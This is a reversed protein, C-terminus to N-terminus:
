EVQFIAPRSLSGHNFDGLLSHESTDRAHVIWSYYGGSEILGPPLVLRPQQLLESTYILRSDNWLDRIFVQYHAAGGIPKWSLQGPVQELVSENAPNWGSAQPLQSFILYDRAHYINGNALTVRASYWGDSVHEPLDIQRIFVRKEPKGKRKLVRFQELDLQTISTDDPRFVEIREIEAFRETSFLPMMFLPRDPWNCVHIDFFGAGTYHPDDDALVAGCAFWCLSLLVTRCPVRLAMM